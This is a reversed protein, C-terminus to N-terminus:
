SPRTPTWGAPRTRYRPAAAPSSTPWPVASARSPVRVDGDVDPVAPGAAPTPAQATRAHPETAATRDKRVQQVGVARLAHEVDARLILGEPGSGTMERLDLGNQRALRRVLPSIM